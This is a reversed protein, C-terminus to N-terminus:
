DSAGSHPMDASPPKAIVCFSATLDVKSASRSVKIVEVLIGCGFMSSQCLAILLDLAWCNPPIFSIFLNRRTRKSSGAAASNKVVAVAASMNPWDDARTASTVPEVEGFLVAEEFDVERPSVGFDGDVTPFKGTM